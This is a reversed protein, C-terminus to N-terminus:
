RAYVVRAALAPGDKPASVVVRTPEVTALRARENGEDMAVHLAYIAVANVAVAFALVGIRVLKKM